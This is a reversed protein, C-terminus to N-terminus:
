PHAGGTGGPKSGKGHKHKKKKPPPKHIALTQRVSVANGAKDTVSVRVTYRGPRLYSHHDSRGITDAGSGDGWRATVGAIGSSGAASTGPPVDSYRVRM